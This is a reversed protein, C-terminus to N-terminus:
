ADPLVPWAIPGFDCDPHELMLTICPPVLAQLLRAGDRVQARNVKSGHTAGGHVLQNRLVYLRDFVIALVTATDKDVLARMARRSARDFSAKWREGADHERLGKWFPAFVYRNALLTRVPGSYTRFLAAHLVGAGDLALIRAIYADLLARGRQENGFEGGYAANFAIWLFLFRADPDEEEQGARLLWSAARHLRVRSSEDHQDLAQRLRAKLARAEAALGAAAM